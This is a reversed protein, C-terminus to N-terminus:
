KNTSRYSCLLTCQLGNKCYLVECFSYVVLNERFEGVYFMNHFFNLIVTCCWAKKPARIFYCAVHTGKSNVRQFDVVTSHIFQDYYYSTSQKVVYGKRHFSMKQYVLTQTEALLFNSPIIAILQFNEGTGRHISLIILTQSFQFNQNGSKLKYFCGRATLFIRM